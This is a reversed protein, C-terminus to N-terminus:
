DVLQYFAGLNGLYKAHTGLTWTDSEFSGFFRPMLCFVYFIYFIYVYQM